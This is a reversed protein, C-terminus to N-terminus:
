FVLQHRYEGLKNTFKLVIKNTGESEISVTDIDTNYESLSSIGYLTFTPKKDMSVRIVFHKESADGKFKLWRYDGVEDWEENFKCTRMATQLVKVQRRIEKEIESERNTKKAVSKPAPPAVEKKKPAPAKVVKKTEKPKETAKRPKKVIKPEETKKVRPMNDSLVSM